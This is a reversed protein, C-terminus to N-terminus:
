VRDIMFFLDLPVLGAFVCLAFIVDLVGAKVACCGDMLGAVADGIFCVECREACGVGECSALGSFELTVGCVGEGVERDVADDVRLM